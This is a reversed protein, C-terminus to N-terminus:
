SRMEELSRQIAALKNATSDDAAQQERLVRREFYFVVVTACIALLFFLKQLLQVMDLAISAGLRESYIIGLITTNLVLVASLGAILATTVTLNGKRQVEIRVRLLERLCSAFLTISAFSWEVNTWFPRSEAEPKPLNLVAVFFLVFLPVVAWIFDTFFWRLVQAGVQAKSRHENRAAEAVRNEVEIQRLDM